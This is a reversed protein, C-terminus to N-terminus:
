ELKALPCFFFVFDLYDKINPRQFSAFVSLFYLVIHLVVSPIDHLIANLIQVEQEVLIFDLFKQHFKKVVKKVNLNFNDLYERMVEFLTFRKWIWNSTKGKPM